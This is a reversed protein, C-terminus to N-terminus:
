RKAALDPVKEPDGGWVRLAEIITERDLAFTRRLLSAVRPALTRDEIVALWEVALELQGRDHRGAYRAVSQPDIRLRKGERHGQLIGARFLRRVHEGSCQLQSAVDRVLLGIEIERKKEAM